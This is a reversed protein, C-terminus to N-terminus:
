VGPWKENLIGPPRQSAQWPSPVTVTSICNRASTSSNALFAAARSELAAYQFHAVALFVNVLHQLEGHALRDSKERGHRFDDGLQLHEVFDAETIQPQPLRRRREGTAFRLTQLQGRMEHMLRVRAHKINEVFRRGSQM